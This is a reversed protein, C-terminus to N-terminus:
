GGDRHPQDLLMRALAQARPLGRNVITLHRVGGALLAVGVARAAGGAGLLVADGSRPVFSVEALARTFGQGDTNAGLLRGDCCVITNVAGIARANPALDDLYPLVAEKHPVTVNAGLVDPARLSAVWSPL